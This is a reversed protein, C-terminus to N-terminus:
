CVHSCEPEHAEDQEKLDEWFEMLWSGNTSPKPENERYAPGYNVDAWFDPDSAESQGCQTYRRTKQSQTEEPM